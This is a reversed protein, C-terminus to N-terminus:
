ELLSIWKITIISFNFNFRELSLICFSISYKELGWSFDYSLVYPQFQSKFSWSSNSFDLNAYVWYTELLLKSNFLTFRWNNSAFFLNFKVTKATWCDLSDNLIRLFLNRSPNSFVESKNIASVCNACFCNSCKWVIKSCLKTLCFAGM